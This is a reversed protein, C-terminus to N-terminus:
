LVELQEGLELFHFIPSPTFTVFQWEKKILDLEAFIFSAFNTRLYNGIAPPTLSFPLPWESFKQHPEKEPLNTLKWFM